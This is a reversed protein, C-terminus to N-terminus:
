RYYEDINRSQPKKYKFSIIGFVVVCVCGIIFSPFRIWDDPYAMIIAVIVLLVFGMLMSLNEKLVKRTLKLRIPKKPKKRVKSLEKLAVFLTLILLLGIVYPLRTPYGLIGYLAGFFVVLIFNLRLIIKAIVRFMESISKGVIDESLGFVTFFAYLSWSTIIINLLPIINLTLQGITVNLTASPSQLKITILVALLGLVFIGRIEENRNETTERSM